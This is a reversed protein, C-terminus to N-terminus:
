AKKFNLSSQNSARGALIKKRFPISFQKAKINPKVGLPLFSESRSPHPPIAGRLERRGGSGQESQRKKPPIQPRIECLSIRWWLFHQGQGLGGM